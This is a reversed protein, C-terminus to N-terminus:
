KYIERPWGHNFEVCLENKRKSIMNYIDFLDCRVGDHNIVLMRSEDYIVKIDISIHNIKKGSSSVAVLSEDELMNISWSHCYWIPWSRLYHGDVNVPQIGRPPSGHTAKYAIRHLIIKVSRAIDNYTSLNVSM